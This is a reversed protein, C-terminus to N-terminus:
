RSCSGSGWFMAAFAVVDLTERGRLRLVARAGDARSLEVELAEARAGLLQEGSVEVFAPGDSGDSEVVPSVGLREVRRKLSGYDVRLSRSVAYVGFERALAVAAEWLEDGMPTGSGKASRWEEILRRVREVRGLLAAGEVRGM